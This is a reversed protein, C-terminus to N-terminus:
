HVRHSPIQKGVYPTWIRRICFIYFPIRKYLNVIEDANPQLNKFWVSHTCTKRRSQLKQNPDDEIMIAYGAATFSADSM